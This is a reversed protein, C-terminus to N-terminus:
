FALLLMTVMIAMSQLATFIFCVRITIILVADMKSLLCVSHTNYLIDM